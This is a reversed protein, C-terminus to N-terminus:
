QSAGRIDNRRAHHHADGHAIARAARHAAATRRRAAPRVASRLRLARRGSGSARAICGARSDPAHPRNRTRDGAVLRRPAARDHSLSAGSGARRSRQSRRSPRRSATSKVCFTRGRAPRRSSWAAVCAWYVKHVRRREFQSALNRAARHTKAFVMVGSVPRDLRHPIGLYVEAPDGDDPALYRKIRSELSEIGPPAQTAIGAPKVVGLLADDELLIDFGPQAMPTLAHCSCFSPMRSKPPHGRHIAQLRISALSNSRRDNPPVVFPARYDRTLLADAESNDVFMENATDIALTPGYSLKTTELDLKNDALHENFRQYTEVLHEPSKVDEAARRSRRGVAARRASVLHQGPPVPRQVPPGERYRRQPGRAQPQPRRRHLQRLPRRRRRIRAGQQRGQRVRRRQLLQDDGPLRRCRRRHHRGQRGQLGRDPLGRVEFVLAQDGYDHVIMQTNAADGADEYGLRGGYSFVSNSLKDVGLAWRCLDM